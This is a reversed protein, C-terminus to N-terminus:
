IRISFSAMSFPYRGFYGRLPKGDPGSCHVEGSFSVPYHSEGEKLLDKLESVSVKPSQPLLRLAKSAASSSLLRRQIHFWTGLMTTIGGAALCIWSLVSM